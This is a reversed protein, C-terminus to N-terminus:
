VGGREYESDYYEPDGPRMALRERKDKLLQKSAEDLCVQPRRADYPRKYVALVDEMHAVFEANPTFTGINKDSDPICPNQPFSNPDCLAM